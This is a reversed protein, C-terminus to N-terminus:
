IIRFFTYCNRGLEYKVVKFNQLNSRLDWMGAGEEQTASYYSYIDRKAEYTMENDLRFISGQM